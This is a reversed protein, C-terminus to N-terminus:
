SLCNRMQEYIDQESWEHVGDPEQLFISLIEEKAAEPNKCQLFLARWKTDLDKRTVIM